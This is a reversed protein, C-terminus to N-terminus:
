LSSTIGPRRRGAKSGEITAPCFEARATQAEASHRLAEGTRTKLL